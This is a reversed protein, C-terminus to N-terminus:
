TPNNAKKNSLKLFEKYLESVLGKYSIHKATIKEQDTSQRKMGKMTHKVSCFNKIKILDLKFIKEKM